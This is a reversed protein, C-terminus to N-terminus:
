PPAASIEVESMGGYDASASLRCRHRKGEKALAVSPKVLEFPKALALSTLGILIQRRTCTM